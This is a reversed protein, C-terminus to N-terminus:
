EKPFLVDLYGQRRASQYASPNLNVYCQCIFDQFNLIYNVSKDTNRKLLAATLYQSM